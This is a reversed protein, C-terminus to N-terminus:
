KLPAGFDQVWYKGNQAAGMEIYGQTMMQKCHGASKVWGQIVQNMDMYGWAINEGILGWNYGADTIRKAIDSGDTGTHSFHTNKSMDEAHRQASEELKDNWRLPKVPVMKVGGCTCGKARVANVRALMEKRFNNGGTDTAAPPLVIEPDKKLDSSPSPKPATHCFLLLPLVGIVLYKKM